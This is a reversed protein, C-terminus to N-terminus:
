HGSNAALPAAHRVEIDLHAAIMQDLQTYIHQLTHDNDIIVDGSKWAIGAESSHSSQTTPGDPRYMHIIFGREKRIAEAENDFRVDSIVVNHFAKSRNLCARIWLQNHVLDRGWETGCNQMIKRPTWEPLWSIEKEKYEPDLLTTMPVGLLSAAMQRIPAAFSDWHFGYYQHLYQAATDKGSFARGTIGIIM